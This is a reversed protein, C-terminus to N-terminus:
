VQVLGLWALLIRPDSSSLQPRICTCARARRDPIQFQLRPYVRVFRSNCTTIECVILGRACAFSHVLPVPGAVTSGSPPVLNAWGETRRGAPMCPLTRKHAQSAIRLDCSTLITRKRRPFKLVRGNATTCSDPMSGAVVVPDTRTLVRAPGVRCGISSSRSGLFLYRAEDGHM